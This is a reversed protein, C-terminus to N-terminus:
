SLKQEPPNEDERPPVGEFLWFGLESSLRLTAWPSTAWDAAVGWGLASLRRGSASTKKPKATRTTAQRNFMIFEGLPSSLHGRHELPGYPWIAARSVQM